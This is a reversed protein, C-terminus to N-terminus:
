KFHLSKERERSQILKRRLLYVTERRESAGTLYGEEEEEKERRRRRFLSVEGEELLFSVRRRL